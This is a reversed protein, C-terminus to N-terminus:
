MTEDPGTQHNGFNLMPQSFARKVWIENCVLRTLVLIIMAISLSPVFTRGGVMPASIQFSNIKSNSDSDSDSEPCDSSQNKL